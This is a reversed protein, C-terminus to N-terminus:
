TSPEIREVGGPAVVLFLAAEEALGDHTEGPPAFLYDGPSLVADPEASRDANLRGQVRLRGELMYTEEGGPHDHLPARAGQRMRILFTLGRDTHHRLIRMEVGDAISIFASRREREPGSEVLTHSETNTM